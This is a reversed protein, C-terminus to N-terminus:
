LLSGAWFLVAVIGALITAEVADLGREHELGFRWIAAGWLTTVGSIVPGWTLMPQLDARVEDVLLSLDSGPSVTMPDLLLAMLGIAVPLTMISPVLGWLAVAISEGIGGTGDAMWSGVHLLGAVLALVIPFGVLAPGMFEGMAERILVDVDQEIQAPADCGDAMTEPASECFTDPPREPNDVMVTGDVHDTLVWGVGWIAIPLSLVLVVGVVLLRNAHLDREAFFRDPRLLPTHPPM